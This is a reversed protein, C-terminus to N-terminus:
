FKVAFGIYPVGPFIWEEGTVNAFALDVSMKEGFIRMGYSVLANDAVSPVMYNETLLSVRRAVRVAGGLMMAPDGSIRGGAYGWGMGLDLHTDISGASAIGYLMGFNRNRDSIGDLGAIGILAGTALAFNPREVLGVKPTLYFVNNQPETSPVISFGGGLTVHDTVGGVFNLLLVETDSFYGEGQKLMRATPAFFLRTVNPDPLWYEGNKLQKPSIAQMSAVHSRAISFVSGNSAFRISDASESVLRGIFTSGDRTKLVHTHLTDVGATDPQQAGLRAALLAAVTSLALLVVRPLLRSATRSM